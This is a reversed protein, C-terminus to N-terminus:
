HTIFRFSHSKSLVFSVVRLAWIAHLYTGLTLVTVAFMIDGRAQTVQMTVPVTTKFTTLGKLTILLYNTKVKVLVERHMIKSDEFLKGYEAYADCV